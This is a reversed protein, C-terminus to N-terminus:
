VDQRGALYKETLNRAAIYHDDLQLGMKEVFNLAKVLPDAMQRVLYDLQADLRGIDKGSAMAREEFATNWQKQYNVIVRTLTEIHQRDDDNLSKCLEDYTVKQYTQGTSRSRAVFADEHPSNVFSFDPPPVSSSAPQKEEIFDKYGRFIKDFAGVADSAMKAILAATALDVM